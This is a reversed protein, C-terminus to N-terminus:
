TRETEYADRFDSGVEGLFKEEAAEAIDRYREQYLQWMKASRGGAVLTELLGTESMDREVEEPDFRDIMRRLATQLASWTRVQHDALDRFAGPVAKDGQLYSTDRGKILAVIAEDSSALFKLPNVDANAILTQAVRVKQKEQARTRLLFMTGDVMDRFRAGVAEVEELTMGNKMKHEVGLGRMLAALTEGDGAAVTETPPPTTEIPPETMELQITEPEEGEIDKTVEIPPWPGKNKPTVEEAVPERRPVEQEMVVEKAPTDFYGHGGSPKTREPAETVEDQTASDAGRHKILDTAFPDYPPKSKFEEDRNPRQTQEQKKSGFQEPLGDPREPKEYVEGKRAGFGFPEDDVDIAAPKTDQKADAKMDVRIVFDGIRLRMDHELVKSNGPGLPSSGGDIYLGDSSSDIVAVEGSEDTITCHRRSVYREPDDLQWDCDDNRGIILQGGSYTKATEQQAHPAHELILQVSM